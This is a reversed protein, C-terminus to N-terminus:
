LESLTSIKGNFYSGVWVSKRGQIILILRKNKTLEKKWHTIDIHSPTPHDEPHTHWEGVYTKTKNSTRWEKLVRNRHSICKREFSFRSAFDGKQPITNDVVSIHGGRYQGILVGGQENSSTSHQAHSAISFIVANDILLYNGGSIVFAKKDM